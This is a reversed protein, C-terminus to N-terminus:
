LLACKARLRCLFRQHKQANYALCISFFASRRRNTSFTRINDVGYKRRFISPIAEVANREKALQKHAEDGMTRQASARDAMKQSISVKVAEKQNKGPCQDRYPCMSCDTHSFKADVKGTKENYKQSMPVAHNPCSLIKTGDESFEFDACLDPTKKGTLASPILLLGKKEAERAIDESYFAGDTTEQEEPSNEDRAAIYEKMFDADSHSNSQIDAFTILSNGNDDYTESVNAVSGIHTKGNKKRATANPDRPSQMSTGAIDKSDKPSINGNGDDRSQEEICRVLNKYQEFEHWVEDAMLKKISLSEELLLSVKERMVDKNHYIIANKDDEEFYHHLSYKISDRGCLQDYLILADQNVTYIIGPRSLRAAPSDIMMSDMRKKIRGSSGPKDLGMKRALSSTVDKFCNKILSIGTKKEYADLKAIFYFLNRRSFPQSEMSTTHLAYQLAVDSDIRLLLEDVTLHQMQMILYAGVLGQLYYPGRGQESYLVMFSDANILPFIEDGFHGLRSNIIAKQGRESLNLFRDGLNLQLYPSKAKRGMTVSERGYPM